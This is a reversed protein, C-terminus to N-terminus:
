RYSCPGPDHNHVVSKPGPAEEIVKNTESTRLPGDSNEALYYPSPWMEFTVPSIMISNLNHNSHFYVGDGLEPSSIAEALAIATQPDDIEFELKVKISM